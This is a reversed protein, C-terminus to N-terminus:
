RQADLALAYSVIWLGALAGVSCVFVAVLPSFAATPGFRSAALAGVLGIVLAASFASRNM